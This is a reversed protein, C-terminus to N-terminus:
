LLAYVPPSDSRVPEGAVEGVWRALGPGAARLNKLAIRLQGLVAPRWLEHDPGDLVVRLVALPREGAAEALWASEMDVARAGTDRLRRREAGRVVHDVSAVPAARVRLGFAVLQEYLADCDLERREGDPGILASAVVVDGPLLGPDLAGCLGAVALARAPDSALQRAARRARAAGVGTRVVRLGPAGRRLARAELRLPAAVVLAEALAGGFPIM